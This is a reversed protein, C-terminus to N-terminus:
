PPSAVSIIRTRIIHRRKVGTQTRRCRQSTDETRRRAKKWCRMRGRSSRKAARDDGTHFNRADEPVTTTRDHSASLRMTGDAADGGHIGRRPPSRRTRRPPRGKQTDGPHDCATSDGHTCRRRHALRAQDRVCEGNRPEFQQRRCRGCRPQLRNQKRRILRLCRHILQQTEIPPQPNQRPSSRRGRRGGRGFQPRISVFRIPERRHAPNQLLKPGGRHGPM